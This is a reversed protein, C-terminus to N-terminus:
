EWPPPPEPPEPFTIMTTFLPKAREKKPPGEAPPAGQAKGAFDTM